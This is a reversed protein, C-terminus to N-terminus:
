QRYFPVGCIDRIGLAKKSGKLRDRKCEKVRIHRHM